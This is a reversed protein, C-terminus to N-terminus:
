DSSPSTDSVSTARVSLPPNGGYSIVKVQIPGGDEDGQLTQPIMKVYAKSLQEAAWKKDAKDDGELCALLFEFFPESLDAYRQKIQLEEKLTKRGSPM